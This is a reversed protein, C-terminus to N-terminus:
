KKFQKVARPDDFGKEYATKKNAKDAAKIDYDEMDNGEYEDNGFKHREMRALRELLGDMGDDSLQKAWYNLWEEMTIKGDQDEDLDFMLDSAFQKNGGAVGSRLIEEVELNGNGDTDIAKFLKTIRAM